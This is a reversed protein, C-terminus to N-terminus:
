RVNLNLIVANQIIVNNGSNQVAVPLGSAYSFAGESITNAGNSTNIAVNDQLTANTQQLNLELRGDRARRDDLAQRTM